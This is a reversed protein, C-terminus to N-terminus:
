SALRKKFAVELGQVLLKGGSQWLINRDQYRSPLPNSCGLTVFSKAIASQNYIGTLEPLGIENDNPGFVQNAAAFFMDCSFHSPRHPVIVYPRQLFPVFRNDFITAQISTFLSAMVIFFYVATHFMVKGGVYRVVNM